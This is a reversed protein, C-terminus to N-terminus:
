ATPTEKMQFPLLLIALTSHTFFKETNISISKTLTKGSLYCFLVLSIVIISITFLLYNESFPRSIGILPFLINMMLGTIMLFPLSIGISYLIFEVPKLVNLRLILILLIGPVFALYIFGITERLIPIEIETYDIAIAGFLLFQILLVIILLDKSNLNM